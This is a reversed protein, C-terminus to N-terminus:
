TVNCAGGTGGAGGAGGAGGTGGMPAGSGGAGGLAGPSANTTSCTKSTTTTSTSTSSDVDGTSTSQDVDGKCTVGCIKDAYASPAALLMAGITLLVGMSVVVTTITSKNRAMDRYKVTHYILM